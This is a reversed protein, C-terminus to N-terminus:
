ARKCEVFAHAFGERSNRDATRFRDV